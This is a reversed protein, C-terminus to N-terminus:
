LLEFQTFHHTFHKNHFIIWESHHLAGMTPHIPKIGPYLRFFDDFNDLDTLLTHIAEPIDSYQLPLLEDAPLFPTKFGIPLARSGHIFIARIKDAKEEPLFLKQEGRGSSLRLVLSLHEVMHQATMIGFIPQRNPELTLLLTIIQTRNSIDLVTSIETKMSNGHLQSITLGSDRLM